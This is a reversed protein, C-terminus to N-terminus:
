ENDEPFCTFIHTVCSTDDPHNGNQCRNQQQKVHLPFVFDFIAADPIDSQGNPPSRHPDNHLFQNVPHRNHSHNEEQEKEEDSLELKALIGVYEITEDSIINAM